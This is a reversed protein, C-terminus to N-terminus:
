EKVKLKAANDAIFARIQPAADLLREFQERYLTVPFRGLGYVSVGGKDGVKFTLPKDAQKAKLAANERRLRELESEDTARAQIDFADDSQTSM